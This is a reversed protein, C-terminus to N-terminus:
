GQERDSLASDRVQDVAGTALEAGCSACRPDETAEGCAPCKVIKAMLRGWERAVARRSVSRLRTRAKKPRRPVAYVCGWSVPLSSGGRRPEPPELHSSM